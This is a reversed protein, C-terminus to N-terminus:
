ASWASVAGRCGTVTRGPQEGGPLGWDTKRNPFFRGYEPTLYAIRQRGKHATKHKVLVRVGQEPYFEAASVRIVEGPRAGTQHLALPM